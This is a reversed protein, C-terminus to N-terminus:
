ERNFLGGTMRQLAGQPCGGSQTADKADEKPQTAKGTCYSLMGRARQYEFTNETRFQLDALKKGELLMCLLLGHGFPRGSDNILDEYGRGLGVHDTGDFDFLAINRGEDYLTKLRKFAETHVIMESYLKGYVEKRGELYSIRRGNWWVFAPACKGKAKPLRSVPHRLIGKYQRFEPHSEAFRPEVWGARAFTWWAATPNLTARGDIHRQVNGQADQVEWYVKSYQWASEINVATVAPEVGPIEVPGVFMPSLARGWKSSATTINITIWSDDPRWDCHFPNIQKGRITKRVKGYIRIPM